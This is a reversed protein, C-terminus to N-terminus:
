RLLRMGFPMKGFLILLWAWWSPRTDCVKRAVHVVADAGGLTRGDATLVRIEALLREPIVHLREVVWPARLPEHRFGAAGLFPGWDFWWGPACPVSRMTCFGAAGRNNRSVHNAMEEVSNVLYLADVGDQAALSMQVLVAPLIM